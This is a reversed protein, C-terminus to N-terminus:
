ANKLREIENGLQKIYKDKLIDNNFHITDAKAM